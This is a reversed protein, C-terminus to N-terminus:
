INEEYKILKLLKNGAVTNVPKPEHKTNFLRMKGNEYFAIWFYYKM